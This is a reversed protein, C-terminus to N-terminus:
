SVDALTVSIRAEPPLSTGPPALLTCAIHGMREAVEDPAPSTPEPPRNGRPQGAILRQVEQRANDERVGVDQLVAAAIGEGERVLGLLLHETGIYHHSLRRAEEIALEIVKRARPTMGVEGVVGGGSQGIIHMVKTRIMEPAAGLNTLAKFAIGDPEDLLGLLLHETGMYNHGLRQAEQQAHSMVCRTRETFKDFRDQDHAGLLSSSFASQAHQILSPRVPDASSESTEHAALTALTAETARNLTVGLSALVGAAISEGERLLGLLLHGTDVVDQGYQRAAEMSLEIVRRSRPTLGIEGLVTRDGRGIIFEVANRVRDSDLGLRSLVRASVGDVRILGLLLHETGIYNHNFRLAEEQALSLARRAQETFRDFHDPM